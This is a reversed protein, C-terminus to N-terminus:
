FICLVLPLVNLHGLSPVSIKDFYCFFKKKKQFTSTARSCVECLWANEMSSAETLSIPFQHTRGPASTGVTQSEPLWNDAQFGKPCKSTEQLCIIMLLFVM